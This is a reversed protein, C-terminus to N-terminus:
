IIYKGDSEDQDEYIVLFFLVFLKFFYLLIVKFITGDYNISGDPYTPVVINDKSNSNKKKPMNSITRDTTNMSIQNLDSSGLQTLNDTNDSVTDNGSYFFFNVNYYILIFLYKKIKLYM